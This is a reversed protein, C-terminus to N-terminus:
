GAKNRTLYDAIADRMVEAATRGQTAALHDVEDSVAQSLRVQRRPSHEGRAAAPDLAPRGVARAVMDRGFAAAAEGRLATTSDASLVMEHEAWEAAAAYDKEQQDM